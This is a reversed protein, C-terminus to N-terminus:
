AARTQLTDILAALWQPAVRTPEAVEIRVRDVEITLAGNRTLSSVTSAAKVTLPVLTLTTGGTRALQAKWWAIRQAKLGHRRAFAAMSIESRAVEDLVRRADDPRWQRRGRLGALSWDAQAKRM